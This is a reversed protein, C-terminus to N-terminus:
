KVFEKNLKSVNRVVRRWMDGHVSDFGFISMCRRRCYEHRHPQCIKCKWSSHSEPDRYPCSQASYQIAFCWVRWGWFDLWGQPLLLPDVIHYHRLPEIPTVSTPPVSTVVYNLYNHLYHWRNGVPINFVMKKNCKTMCPWRQYTWKKRKM